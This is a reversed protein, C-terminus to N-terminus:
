PNTIKLKLIIPGPHTKYKYSGKGLAKHDQGGYAVGEGDGGQHPLPHPLLPGGGQEDVQGQCVEHDNHKCYSTNKLINLNMIIMNLKLPMLTWSGQM